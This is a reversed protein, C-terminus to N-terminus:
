EPPDTTEIQAIMLVYDDPDVVRMEESPGPSGDEIGAALLRERLGALDTSYLYFLVGQGAPEIPHGDLTLM